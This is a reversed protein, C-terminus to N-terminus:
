VCLRWEVTFIFDNKQKIESWTTEPIKGAIALLKSREPIVANTTIIEEKNSDAELRM